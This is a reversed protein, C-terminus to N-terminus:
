PMWVVLGTATPLVLMPWVRRNPRHVIKVSCFQTSATFKVVARFPSTTRTPLTMRTWSGPRARARIPPRITEAVAEVTVSSAGTM